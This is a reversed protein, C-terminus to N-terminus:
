EEVQHANAEREQPSAKGVANRRTLSLRAEKEADAVKKHFDATNSGYALSMLDTLKIDGAKAAYYTDSIVRMFRNGFAEFLRTMTQEIRPELLEAQENDHTARLGIRILKTVVAGRTLQSAGSGRMREVEAFEPNTIYGSVQHVKRTQSGHHKPAKQTDLPDEYEGDLKTAGGGKEGVAMDGATNPHEHFSMMDMQYEPQPTQQPTQQQPQTALSASSIADHPQPSTAYRRWPTAKDQLFEGPTEGEERGRDFFYKYKLMNM